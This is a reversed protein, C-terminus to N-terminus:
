GEDLLAKKRLLRHYTVGFRHAEDRLRQLLRLAPRGAELIISDSKGPVFVEEIRKALAVAPIRVKVERMSELAASLQGKGGDILVLDPLKAGEAKLRSYRRSVAEKMSKFDDVGDVTRLRFKRYHAKHPEGGMFCVMSAVTQRGQFHSIDFCEIHFPPSELNLARQLDTVSESASIAGSLDEERVARFRVREGIQEMAAINDRLKAAREYALAASAAKMEKQFREKLDGYRGRFFLVADQAIRRYDQPAIKGACPAPCEGTHYYLCSNIKRPSLPREVSFEWRCPRLPFYKQRWLYALLSKVVTVKPYPGFYVGGDATKKRTLMLRPFDEGLTVKVWPYSKDDKLAANFFPRHKRILRRELLLAERESACPIYDIRRILPSLAATKLDAKGPTFYHSVRKALDNAKGVYLITGGADVMIYVGCAHPLHSRDLSM